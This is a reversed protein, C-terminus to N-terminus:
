SRPMDRLFRDVVKTKLAKERDTRSGKKLDGLGFVGRVPVWKDHTLPISAFAKEMGARSQLWNWEDDRVNCAKAAHLIMAALGVALACSISSGSHKDWKPPPPQTGMGSEGTTNPIGVDVGPLFYHCSDDDKGIRDWRNGDKQAAGVCFVSGAKTPYTENVSGVGKDPNACFLLINHEDNARTIAQKLPQLWKEDKGSAAPDIAWSM